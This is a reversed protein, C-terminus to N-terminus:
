TASGCREVRLVVIGDALQIPMPVFRKCLEVGERLTLGPMLVAEMPLARLADEFTHFPLKDRIVARFRRLQPDARHRVELEDGIHLDNTAATHRRGEYTKRGEAMLEFWPSDLYMTFTRPQPQAPPPPAPM